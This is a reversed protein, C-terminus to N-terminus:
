YQLIKLEKEWPSNTKYLSLILLLFYSMWSASPLILLGPKGLAAPKELSCTASPLQPEFHSGPM